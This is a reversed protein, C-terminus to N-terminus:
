YEHVTSMTFVLHERPLESPYDFTETADYVYDDRETVYAAWITRQRFAAAAGFGARGRWGDGRAEEWALLLEILLDSLTPM